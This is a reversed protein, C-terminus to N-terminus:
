SDYGLYEVCVLFFNLRVSTVNRLMLALKSKGTDANKDISTPDVSFCFSVPRKFVYGGGEAQDEQRIKAVFSFNGIRVNPKNDLKAKAPDELDKGDYEQVKGVSISAGSDAAGPPLTLSAYLVGEGEKATKNEPSETLSDMSFALSTPKDEQIESTM